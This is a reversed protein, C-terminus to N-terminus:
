GRKVTFSYSIYPKNVYDGHDLVTFKANYVPLDDWDFQLLIERKVDDLNTFGTALNTQFTIHNDGNFIYGTGCTVGQFSCDALFCGYVTCYTNNIKQVTVLVNIEGYGRSYNAIYHVDMEIRNLVSSYSRPTESGFSVNINKANASPKSSKSNNNNDTMAVVFVIIGIVLLLFSM